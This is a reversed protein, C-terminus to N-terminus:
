KNLQNIIINLEEYFDKLPMPDTFYVTHMQTFRSQFFENVKEESMFSLYIYILEDFSWSELLLNQEESSLDSWKRDDVIKPPLIHGIAYDGSLKVVSKTCHYTIYDEPKIPTPYEEPFPWNSVDPAHTLLIILTDQKDFTCLNDTGYFGPTNSGWLIFTQVNEPFNGKLDEDLRIHLGSKKHTDM